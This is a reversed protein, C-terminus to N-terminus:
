DDVISPASQSLSAFFQAILPQVVKRSAKVNNQTYAAADSREESSALDLPELDMEQSSQLHNQLQHRTKPNKASSILLERTFNGSDDVFGTM